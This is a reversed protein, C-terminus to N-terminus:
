HAEAWSLGVGIDVVLPVSLPYCQEMGQRVIALVRELEDEPAEFVLEDHIQMLMRARMGARRLAEDIQLMALKCIDAASGQIPTNAAIREGAQRLMVNNSSLEPIMRRRGLITTVYGSSLARAITDDLWRRVGAYVSFYNTIYAKAEARKIGLLQGLATAGQGYITAFNVTKGVNRQAPTVAAPDLDFLQSATFRHVDLCENFSQLLKADQCFHALIRLEIQSWDASILRYGPAPVFAERIRKGEPTKIPTRQLDPDTSILRGSAATTQNFTAHIRGTHRNVERQLVDTYTNILKALARYDLILRAITHESALRELVESDTSYGTKTRKIVPLKLEEFLVESLQKTSEINFARGAIAYIQAAFDAKRGRFEDGLVKLDQSDVRVGAREMGALVWSLALDRQLQEGMGLADIQAVLKPWIECVVDARHAAFNGVTTPESEAFRKVNKGSGLLEKKLPITRHLYEKVMQPLRHPIIKTPDILYSALMVDFAVGALAIGHNELILALEKADHVVKKRRPDEAVERLLALWPERERPPLPLYLAHGPVGCFAIGVLQATTASAMERDALPYWVCPNPLAALRARADELSTCIQYDLGALRETQPRTDQSLLSFFELERYLADLVASDAPRIALEALTRDLPVQRDLTALQQSLRAAAGNQELTTRQRGKLESTHALLNELTQYRELLGAAGKQGIGPVGPINDSSDGMIALLDVIQHPSVGWKKRVLEPDYTVDRLTDLMRIQPTILQALDKDGSVIIVEHGAEQAQQCLTGIVDDAEYGSLHILPFNNAEVVRHIWPLQPVLDEPMRPRHAKYAPYLTERVTRGPADFVVAGLDPARGAMLKRFMTAFGYIANTPLGAATSFSGPIAYYARFILWSGDVLIVRKTASM